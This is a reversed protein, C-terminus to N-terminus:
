ALKMVAVGIVVLLAGGAKNWSLSTEPLGMLGFHDILLSSLLQGAVIFAIFLAAGLHQVLFTGALVVLVGLPGGIWMWWDVTKITAWSPPSPRLILMVISSFLITGLISCYSAWIGPADLVSRLRNNAGAQFALCAGACAALLAYLLINM